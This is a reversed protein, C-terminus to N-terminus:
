GCCGCPCDEPYYHEMALQAYHIVKQLDQKGGKHKFRTIYKVVNGSFWDLENEVIYDIPQIKNRAYHNGGVQMDTAKDSGQNVPRDRDNVGYGCGVCFEDKPREHKQYLSWTHWNFDCDECKHRAGKDSGLVEPYCLWSLHECKEDPQADPDNM